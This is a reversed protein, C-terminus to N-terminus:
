RSPSISQPFVIKQTRARSSGTLPLTPLLRTSVMLCSTFGIVTATSAVENMVNPNIAYTAHMRNVLVLLSSVRAIRRALAGPFGTRGLCPHPQSSAIANFHYWSAAMLSSETASVLKPHMYKLPSAPRRRAWQLRCAPECFRRSLVIWKCLRVEGCKIELAPTQRALGVLPSDTDPRQGAPCDTSVLGARM